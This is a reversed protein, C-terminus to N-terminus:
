CNLCTSYQKLFPETEKRWAVIFVCLRASPGESINDNFLCTVSKSILSIEKNVLLFCFNNAEPSLRALMVGEGAVWEVSNQTIDPKPGEVWQWVEREMEAFAIDSLAVVVIVM